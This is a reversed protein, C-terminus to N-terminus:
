LVWDAVAANLFTKVKRDNLCSVVAEFFYSKRYKEVVTPLM